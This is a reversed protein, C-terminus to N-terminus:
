LSSRLLLSILFTALSLAAAKDNMAKICADISGYLREALAAAADNAAVMAVAKVLDEVSLQESEVLWIDAGNQACAIPSATVMSDLSLTGEDIAEFALCLLMIKSLSACPRKEHSNKECLVKGTEADMLVAAPANTGAADGGSEAHAAPINVAAVAATLLVCLGKRVLDKLM